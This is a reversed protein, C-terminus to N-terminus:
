NEDEDEIYPQDGQDEEEIYPQGGQDEEEDSVLHDELFEQITFVVTSFSFYESDFLSEWKSILYEMKENDSSNTKLFFGFISNNKGKIMSVCVNYLVTLAEPNYRSKDVLSDFLKRYTNDSRNTMYPTMVSDPVFYNYLKIYPMNPSIQIIIWKALIEYKHSIDAPSLTTIKRLKPLLITDDIFDINDRVVINNEMIEVPGAFLAVLFQLQEPSFNKNQKAVEQILTEKFSM